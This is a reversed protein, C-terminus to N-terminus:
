FRILAEINRFFLLRPDMGMRAQRHLRLPCLDSNKWHTKLSRGDGPSEATQTQAVAKLLMLRLRHHRRCTQHDTEVGAEEEEEVVMVEEVTAIAALMDEELVEEVLAIATM